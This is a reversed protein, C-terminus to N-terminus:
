GLAVSGGAFFLFRAALLAGSVGVGSGAVIWASEGTPDGARLFTSSISVSAAGVGEGSSACSIAWNLLRGLAAWAFCGAM